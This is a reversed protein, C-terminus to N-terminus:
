RILRLSGSFRFNPAFGSLTPFSTQRTWIRDQPSFLSWLHGRGTGTFGKPFVSLRVTHFRDFIERVHSPTEEESPWPFLFRAVGHPGEPLEEVFDDIRQSIGTGSFRGFRGSFHATPCFVAGEVNMDTSVNGNEAIHRIKRCHRGASARPYRYSVNLKSHLM